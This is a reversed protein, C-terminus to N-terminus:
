DGAGADQHHLHIVLAPANPQSTNLSPKLDIKRTSAPVTPFRPLASSRNDFIM